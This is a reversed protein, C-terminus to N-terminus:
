GKKSSRSTICFFFFSHTIKVPLNEPVKIKDSFRQVIADISVGFKETEKNLTYTEELTEHISQDKHEENYQEIKLRASKNRLEKYTNWHREM